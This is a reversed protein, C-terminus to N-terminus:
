PVRRRGGVLHACGRQELCATENLGPLGILLRQSSQVGTGDVKSEPRDVQLEAVPGQRDNGAPYEDLHHVCFLFPDLTPWQMGLPVTQVVASM